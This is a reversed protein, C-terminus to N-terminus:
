KKKKKKIESKRNKVYEAINSLTEVILKMHSSTGELKAKAAMLIKEVLEIKLRVDAIVKKFERLIMAIYYIAWALLITFLLVCFALVLYLIDKTTEIM